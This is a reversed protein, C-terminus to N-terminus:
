GAPREGNTNEFLMNSKTVGSILESDIGCEISFTVLYICRYIVESFKAFILPQSKAPRSYFAGSEAVTIIASASFTM